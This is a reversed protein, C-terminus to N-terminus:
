KLDRKVTEALDFYTKQFFSLCKRQISQQVQQGSSVKKCEGSGYKASFMRQYLFKSLYFAM